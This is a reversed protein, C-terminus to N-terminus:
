GKENGFSIFFLGGFIGSLIGATACTMAIDMAELDGLREFATGVAAATETDAPSVLQWCCASAM